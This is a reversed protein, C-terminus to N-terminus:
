ESHAYVITNEPFGNPGPTGACTILRLLPRDSEVWIRDYPLETKKVQEIRDM